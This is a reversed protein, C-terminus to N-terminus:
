TLDVYKVDLVGDVKALEKVAETPVAADVSLIAIAEGGVVNRGVHMHAINIEHEGLVTGIGGIIRPRDYHPAVIMHGELEVNLNYDDVRLIHGRNRRLVTGAVSRTGKSTEVTATILNSYDETDGTKIESVKIGRQKAVHPANVFNVSDQLSPKFMGKLFSTTLPNLNHKALDGAYSITVKEISGNVTQGIFRGLREILDLYPAFIAMLEPKVSPINVAARVVEGHLVRVIEESVDIAVNVQAEETSAGLHPTVLVQELGFLPSETTPEKEFVDIGAGAVKGSVIANYLAEEDIIGGRACNILRVGDKMMALQETSIMRYTEKTKPMHVTIFDAHAYIEELSKIEVGLNKAREETVYPDYGYITMGFAQAFKAVESGIKGLGLIGLIKGKLEVGTYKSRAWQGGKLANAAPYIKRALALMHSMTLEAAAITNGEPANCVVIGKMTAAEVDINDVGVGARGIVKLQNGAEIIRKTIKTESRVIVAQYDGVINVIEDETQKLKVDVTIGANQLIQIGKESVKDCVLVRM